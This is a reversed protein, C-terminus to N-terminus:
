TLEEPNIVKWITMFLIKLDFVPSWNEIYYVDHRIRDPISTDGRLGNVQAWGTIGPRVQHKVMYLPVEEKFQEVFYPLEPRPGVLSMDGKLVNFFQPLEDISTKRILAGFKTKRNDVNQSWGTTEQSNVRMSRFKYMDFPKKNLGVRTQKFIIPGPSSLKVGIAAFLMLPSSLIILILSGVVDFTRKLFANGINDLPVRRLNIVPVGNVSDIQPNSPMYKAYFPIMSLKVGSKECEQIVHPMWETEGVDLAAVVEDPHQVDLVEGLQELHGLWPLDYWDNKTSVYGLIHYGLYPASVVASVYDKLLAASGVLVVRRQFYGLTRSRKMARRWIIRKAGISLTVLVTYFVLAWRSYNIRKILFLAMQLFAFILLNGSLLRGLEQSSEAKQSPEYLDLLTYTLLHVPVLIFATLVYNRFPVGSIGGPLLYFRIWYGLLFSAFVLVGDLAIGLRNLLRQNEKVM